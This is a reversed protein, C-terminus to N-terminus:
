EIVYEYCGIDPMTADRMQGDLDREIGSVPIAKEEVVSLTDLHYDGEDLDVFLADGNELYVCNVCDDKFNLFPENDDLEDLRLACHEFSYNFPEDPVPFLGLEDRRSGSIICNTFRANMPFARYTSCFDDLCLANSLSLADADVGYSGLTCYDFQYNGGYVTRVAGAGNNYFLCNEATITSRIGLLGNSSTNYIQSNTIQLQAASDVAIGLISNKVVAHDVRAESGGLMVIGFWQGSIDSFEEELRDGQIIVPNDQTGEIILSGRSNVILRGDNYFQRITDGPNDPDEFETRTLGGHVYIKAGAPIRLTCGNDVVLIGFLVYPKDDDWVAEGRCQLLFQGEADRFPVYNANQGWAELQVRQTEGNVDFFMQDEIVFPSASIPQNPDVTVEGFIYLSDRAKIQVKRAENGPIGDINFRFSSNDGGNVYIRDIEITQDNPNFVKLIRTASGRATFVTDFRLTDLSFEIRAGPDTLLDDDSFCANIVLAGLLFFYLYKNSFM